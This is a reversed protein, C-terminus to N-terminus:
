ADGDSAGDPRLDLLDRFSTFPMRFRRTELLAKAEDAEEVSLLGARIAMLLLDPTTVIQGQGLRERALQLFVGKEDAAVMYRGHHALALCAAEGKGLCTRLEAFTDLVEPDDLRVLEFYGSRIAEEVAARQEPVLVEELVDEPILGRLRRLDVLLRLRGAHVLNILVSADVAVDKLAESM